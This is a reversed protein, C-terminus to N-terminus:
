LSRRSTARPARKRFPHKDAEAITLVGANLLLGIGPMAESRRALEPSRVVPAPAYRSVWRRRDLVLPAAPLASEPAHPGAPGTPWFHCKDWGCHSASVAERLGM